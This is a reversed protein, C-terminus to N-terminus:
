QNSYYKMSISHRRDFFHILRVCCACAAVVVSTIIKILNCKRIENRENMTNAAFSFNIRQSSISLGISTDFIWMVGETNFEISKPKLGCCNMRNQKAMIQLQKNLRTKHCHRCSKLQFTRIGMQKPRHIPYPINEVQQQQRIFKM